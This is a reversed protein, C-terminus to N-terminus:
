NVSRIRGTRVDFLISDVKRGQKFIDARIFRPSHTIIEVVMGKDAFYARLNRLAATLRANDDPAGYHSTCTEGYPM